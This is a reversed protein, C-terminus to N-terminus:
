GCAVAESKVMYRPILPAWWQKWTEVLEEGQLKSKTEIERSNVLALFKDQPPDTWKDEDVYLAKDPTTLKAVTMAITRRTEGDRSKLMETLLMALDTETWVPRFDASQRVLVGGLDRIEEEPDNLLRDLGALAIQRPYSGRSMAIIGLADFRPQVAPEQWVAKFYLSAIDPDKDALVRGMVFGRSRDKPDKSRALRYFETELEAPTLFRYASQTLMYTFQGYPKLEEILRLYRSGREPEPYEALFFYLASEFNSHFGSVDIQWTREKNQFEPFGTQAWRVLEDLPQDTGSRELHEIILSMTPSSMEHDALKQYDRVQAKIAGASGLLVFSLAAVPFFTRKIFM